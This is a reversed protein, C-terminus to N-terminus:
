ASTRGLISFSIELGLEDVWDLLEKEPQDNTGKSARQQEVLSHLSKKLPQDNDLYDMWKIATDLAIGVEDKAVSVFLLIKYCDSLLQASKRCTALLLLRETWLQVEGLVEEHGTFHYEEGLLTVLNATAYTRVRSPSGPQALHDFLVITQFRTNLRHHGRNVVATLYKSVERAYFTPTPFDVGLEGLLSPLVQERGLSVLGNFLDFLEDYYYRIIQPCGKIERIITRFHYTVEDDSLEQKAVKFLGKRMTLTLYFIQHKNPVLALALDVAKEGEDLLGLEYLCKSEFLLCLAEHMPSMAKSALKVEQISVLADNYGLQNFNLEVEQIRIDFWIKSNTQPNIRANLNQLIARAEQFEGLLLFCVSLNIESEWTLEDVLLKTYMDKAEQYWGLAESIEGLQLAILGLRAKNHAQWENLDLEDWVKGAKLTYKRAEALESSLLLLGINNDCYAQWFRDGLSQWIAQSQTYYQLALEKRGEAGYCHAKRFLVEAHGRQYNLEQFHTLASDFLDQATKYDNRLSYRIRADEVLLETELLSLQDPDFLGTQKAQGLVELAKALTEEASEPYNQYWANNLHTVLAELHFLGYTPNDVLDPVLQEVAHMGEEGRLMLSLVYSRVLSASVYELSGRELKEVLTTLQRYATTIEGRQYTQVAEWVCPHSHSPKQLTVQGLRSTLDDLTSGVISGVKTLRYSGGEDKTVLWEMKRLHFSLKSTSDLGLEAMIGSFSMPGADLVQVIQVRLPHNIVSLFEVALDNLYGAPMVM